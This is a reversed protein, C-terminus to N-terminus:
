KRSRKKEILLVVLRNRLFKIEKAYSKQFLDRLKKRLAGLSPLHHCDPINLLSCFFENWLEANPIRRFVGETKWIGEENRVRMYTGFLMCYITGAIGFYDTQYNWPKQTLMEICQFGSTECKGTFATGEPFLKLDICQGLDIVTLGHSLSDIDCTDNDLLREGLIFNDPKIDGHIIGCNHLEEVMYLIKVAFYIVLAQPMVKEPLKKYINITNLLTGYNYLEGVLISGNQFFHASYFQIYLHRVSPKLREMLQSAIYFEWPNAPKQVKLIVKQNNKPNNTDLVSAQYVHAFAGEGLLCDVHFSKPGLTLETKLKITPLSSKWEFTNSYTSLPKPLRSLLRRILGEDWPNEVIVPAKVNQHIRDEACVLIQPTSVSEKCATLVTEEDSYGRAAQLTELVAKETALQQNLVLSAAASPANGPLSGQEPSQELVPSLKRPKSGEMYQEESSDLVMKGDNNHVANEKDEMAQWSHASLYNFPTSALQTARAFDRTSNPSPALTKNNCHLAWVTSDDMLFETTRTGEKSQEACRLLPHEGFAKAQPLKNKQQPFRNNEKENEDEFVSFASVVPAADNAKMSKGPESKRCYAEFKEQNEQLSPMEPLIPTQFMDMLVGLAEKTHVTPSPQVKFPTAQMAGGLSTNPTAQSAHGFSVSANGIRPAEKMATCHDLKLGSTSVNSHQQGISHGHSFTSQEQVPPSVADGSKLELQLLTNRLEGLDLKAEGTVKECTVMSLSGSVPKPISTDATSTSAAARTQLQDPGLCWSTQLNTTQSPAIWDQRLAPISKVCPDVVMRDPVSQLVPAEELKAEPYDKTLQNLQELKQQLFQMELIASEKRKAYEREEEEWEKQRRLREQKRYVIKARVEEFSLESGECILMNKNYMAVQEFENSTSSLKPLVASKSIYTLYEVKGTGDQSSQAASLTPDQSKSLCAPDGSESVDKRPAMQNPTQSDHLQKSAAVQTLPHSRPIRSQFLRYQEQLNELPEAQNHIGKQLVAGAHQINGETELQQAWAIYLASTRTGVGQSYIYDFFQSPASIFEALKICYKVFRLDQHYREEGIFVKVLQELSASLSEQGGQLPFASEVWQLYRDWPDLPDDGQYSQIQAEFMRGRAALEM